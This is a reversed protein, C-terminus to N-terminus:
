RVHTNGHAHYSRQAAALVVNNMQPFSLKFSQRVVLYEFQRLGLFPYNERKIKIESVQHSSAPIRKWTDNNEPQTVLAWYRDVGPKDVCNM